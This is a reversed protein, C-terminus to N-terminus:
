VSGVVFRGASPTLTINGQLIGQNAADAESFCKGDSVGLLVARRTNGKAAHEEAERTLRRKPKGFL